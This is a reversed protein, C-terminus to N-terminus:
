KNPTPGIFAENTTAFRNQAAVWKALYLQGAHYAIWWEREAGGSVAVLFARRDLARPDSQM